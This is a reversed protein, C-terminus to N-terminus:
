QAEIAHIDNDRKVMWGFALRLLGSIAFFVMKQEGAYSAYGM